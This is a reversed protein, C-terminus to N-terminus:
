VLAVLVLRVALYVAITGAIMWLVQAKASM